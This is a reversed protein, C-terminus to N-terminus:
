SLIVGYLVNKLEIINLIYLLEAVVLNENEYLFFDILDDLDQIKKGTKIGTDNIYDYKHVIISNAESISLLRYELYENPLLPINGSLIM